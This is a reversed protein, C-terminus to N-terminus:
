EGWRETHFRGYSRITISPEGEHRFAYLAPHDIAYADIATTDYTIRPKNFVAMLRLGKATKGEGTEAALALVAQKIQTELEAANAKAAEAQIATEAELDKIQALIEAPMLAAIQEKKSLDLAVLQARTEALQDLLTEIKDTM